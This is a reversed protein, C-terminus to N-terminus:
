TRLVSMVLGRRVLEQHFARALSRGHRHMRWEGVRSLLMFVFSTCGLGVLLTTLVATHRLSLAEPAAQCLTILRYHRPPDM